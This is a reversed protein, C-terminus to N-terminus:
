EDVTGALFAGEQRICVDNRRWVSVASAPFVVLCKCYGAKELVSNGESWGENRDGGMGVEVPGLSLGGEAVSEDFVSLSFTVFSCVKQELVTDARTICVQLLNM